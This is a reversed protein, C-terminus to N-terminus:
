DVSEGGAAPRGSSDSELRHRARAKSGWTQSVGRESASKVRIAKVVKGRKLISTGKLTSNRRRGLIGEVCMTSQPLHLGKTLIVALQASTPVKVLRM